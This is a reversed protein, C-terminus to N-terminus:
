ARQRGIRRLQRMEARGMSEGHGERSEGWQGLHKKRKTAMLNCKWPSSMNSTLFHDSSIVEPHAFM